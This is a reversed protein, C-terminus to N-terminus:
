CFGSGSTRLACRASLRRPFARWHTSLFTADEPDAPDPRPPPVPNITATGLILRGVRAPRMAALTLAVHTGLGDGVLDFQELELRDAVRMIAAAHGSTTTLPDGDSDGHAPLDPALVVRDVALLPLAHDWVRGSLGADHLLVLPRRLPRDPQALRLHMQQGANGLYVRTVGAPTSWWRLMERAILDLAYGDVDRDLQASSTSARAPGRGWGAGLMAAAGGALGVCVARRQRSTARSPKHM